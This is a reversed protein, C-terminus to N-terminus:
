VTLNNSVRLDYFTSIGSAAYVNGITDGSIGGSFSTATLIGTVVAGTEVTEFKLNNNYYAKVGENRILALQRPSVSSENTAGCHFYQSYTTNTLIDNQSYFHLSNNNGGLSSGGNKIVSKTGDNYIQIDGHNGFKLKVNDNFELADDSSDFIASNVVVQTGRFHEDGHLIAGSLSTGTAIGSTSIRTLDTLAM